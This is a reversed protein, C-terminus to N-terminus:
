ARRGGLAPGLVKQLVLRARHLRTRVTNRNMGVAEGVELDTLGDVYRLTVLARDQASLRELAARVLDGAERTALEKEPSAGTADEVRALDAPDTAVGARAGSALRRLCTHYVIRGLWPALPRAPDYSAFGRHAKMFAEQTADEAEAGPGLMRAALRYAMPTHRRIITRWARADGRLARRSLEVDTEEDPPLRM